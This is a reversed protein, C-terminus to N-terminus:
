ELYSCGKENDRKVWLTRGGNEMPVFINDQGFVRGLCYVTNEETLHNMYDVASQEDVFFHVTQFNKKPKDKLFYPRNKEFPKWVVYLNECQM